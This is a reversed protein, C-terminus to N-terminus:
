AVAVTDTEAVPGAAIVGEVATVIHTPPEAVSASADVPPVHLLLVVPIADTLEVVPTTVPRPAPPAVM